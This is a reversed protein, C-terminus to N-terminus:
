KIPKLYVFAFMSFIAIIDLALAMKYEGDVVLIIQMVYCAISLLIVAIKLAKAWIRKKSDINKSKCHNVVKYALFGIILNYVLIIALEMADRRVIGAFSM